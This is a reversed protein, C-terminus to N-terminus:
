LPVVERDVHHLDQAVLDVDEVHILGVWGVDAEVTQDAAALDHAGAGDEILRHRDREVKEDGEAQRDCDDAGAAETRGRRQSSSHDRGGQDEGERAARHGGADDDGDDQDARGPLIGMRTPSPQRQQDDGPQDQCDRDGGAAAQRRAGAPLVVARGRAVHLRHALPEGGERLLREAESEPGLRPDAVAECDGGLEGAM